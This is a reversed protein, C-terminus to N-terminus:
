SAFLSYLGVSDDESKRDSEDGSEGGEYENEESSYNRDEASADGDSTADFHIHSIIVFM